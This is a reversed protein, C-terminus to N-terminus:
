HEDAGRLYTGRHRTAHHRCETQLDEEDSDEMDACRIKNQPVKTTLHLQELNGIGPKQFNELNMDQDGDEDKFRKIKIMVETDM